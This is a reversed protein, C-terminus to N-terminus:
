KNKYAIKKAKILGSNIASLIKKANQPNEDYLMQIYNIIDSTIAKTSTWTDLIDSNLETPEDDEIPEEDEIPEDEEEPEEEPEDDEIPEEDTPEEEEEEFINRLEVINYMESLQRKSGIEFGNEILWSRLQKLTIPSYDWVGDVLEVQGEVIRAAPQGYSKLINGQATTQITAKGYFSKQKRATLHRESENLMKKFERTLSFSNSRRM